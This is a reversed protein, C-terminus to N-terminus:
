AFMDTAKFRHATAEAPVIPLPWTWKSDIQLTLLLMTAMLAFGAALAPWTPEAGESGARLHLFVAAYFQTLVAAASVFGVALGHFNGDVATATFRGRLRRRDVLHKLVLFLLGAPAVLPSAVGLGMAVAFHLLVNAYEEGPWLLQEAARRARMEPWSRSRLARWADTLAEPGGVLEFANGVTASTVLFSVYFIGGRPLFM